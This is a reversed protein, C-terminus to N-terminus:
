KTPFRFSKTCILTDRKTCRQALRFYKTGNLGITKFVDPGLSLYSYKLWALIIAGTYNCIDPLFHFWHLLFCNNIRYCSTRMNLMFTLVTVTSLVTNVKIIHM